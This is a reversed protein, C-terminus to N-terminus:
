EWNSALRSPEADWLYLEYDTQIRDLDPQMDLYDGTPVWSSVMLLTVTDRSPDAYIAKAIANGAEVLGSRDVGESCVRAVVEVAGPDDTSPIIQIGPNLVVGAPLEVAAAAVGVASTDSPTSPVYDICQQPM